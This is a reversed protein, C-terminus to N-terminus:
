PQAESYDGAAFRLAVGYAEPLTLKSQVQFKGSQDYARASWTGYGSYVVTPRQPNKREIQSSYSM